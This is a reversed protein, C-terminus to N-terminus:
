KDGEAIADGTEQQAMQFELPEVHENATEDNNKAVPLEHRGASVSYIPLLLTAVAESIMQDRGLEEIASKESFMGFPMSCVFLPHLLRNEEQMIFGKSEFMDKVRSVSEGLDHEDKDLVWMIPLVRVRSTNNGVDMSSVRRKGQPLFIINFTYLFPTKTLGPNSEGAFGGNFLEHTQMPNVRRPFSNPTLCRCHRAGIQVETFSKRVKTDTYIIQKNIPMLDNYPLEGPDCNRGNFFGRLFNVLGTSHDNPYPPCPYPLMRASQLARYIASHLENLDCTAKTGSKEPDPINVAVFLRSRQEHPKKYTTSGDTQELTFATDEGGSSYRIFQVVSGEPLGAKLIGSLAEYSKEEELSPPICEWIFGHSDDTNAYEKTGSDYAIYPLWKAFPNELSVRETDDCVGVAPKSFFAEKIHSFISGTM